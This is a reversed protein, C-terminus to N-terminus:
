LIHFRTLLKAFQNTIRNPVCFSLINRTFGQVALKSRWYYAKCYLLGEQPPNGMPKPGGLNPVTMPRGHTVAQSERGM